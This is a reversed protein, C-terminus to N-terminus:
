VVFRHLQEVFEPYEPLEMDLRITMAQEAAQNYNMTIGEETEPFASRGSTETPQGAKQNGNYGEGTLLVNIGFAAMRRFDLKGFGSRQIKSTKRAAKQKQM